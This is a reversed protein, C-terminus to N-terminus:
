DFEGRLMMQYEVTDRFKRRMIATNNAEGERNGLKRDIKLALWVTESTPETKAHLQKMWDRADDYRKARYSIDALLYYARLNSPDLKLSRFLYSEGNLDDKNMMYCVGANSLAIAPTQYLPNRLALNFYAFSEKVKGTQCLFWGYDNNIEPDGSALNLAQRFNSEALENQRLVMYILGRLNYAPAYNSDADLAIKAEELAVTPRNDKLYFMGLETHVKARKRVDTTETQTSVSQEVASVDAPPGSDQRAANGVCGAMMFLCAILPFLLKDSSV